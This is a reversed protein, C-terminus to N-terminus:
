HLHDHLRDMEGQVRAAYEALSEKTLRPPVHIPSGAVLLVRSFPRPIVLVTWSGAIRWCRDCHYATPVIARGTRSALSVIGASMQRAPGRPGDPTVVLHGAGMAGMLERFASPSFRNTSGRIPRIGIRRLVEAVFSGDAHISLPM